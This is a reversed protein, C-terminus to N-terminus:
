KRGGSDGHDGWDGHNPNECKNIEEEGETEKKGKYYSLLLKIHECYITKNRWDGDKAMGPCFGHCYHWFPCDKCGGDKQPTSKLVESRIDSKKEARLPRLGQAFNRSCVTIGGPDIGYDAQTHFPDCEGWICSGSGGDLIQPIDAFPTWDHELTEEFQALDMLVGKLRVSSIGTDGQPQLFHIRGGTPLGKIWEKFKPYREESANAKSLTTIIGANLEDILRPLLDLLRETYERSQEEDGWPRYENLPWPGDISLGVHVNYDSLWDIWEEDIWWGGTQISVPKDLERDGWEVMEKIKDEPYIGIDGGFLLVRDNREEAAEKAQRKIKDWDPEKEIPFNDAQYCYNCRPNKCEFGYPRVEISM